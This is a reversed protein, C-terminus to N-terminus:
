PSGWTSFSDGAVYLNGSSDISIASIGDGSTGGIFTNWQLIGSSNLKAVFGDSDGGAYLNLPTGWTAYSLGACLHEVVIWQIAHAYESSTGWYLYEM